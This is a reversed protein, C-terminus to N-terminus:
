YWEPGRARVLFCRTAIGAIFPVGLYIFVSRAVDGISVNVVSGHLGFLQPLKTVFVWAYLSYFLVQFVSNFAVLGAAYETDGKALENWVIVMAICRALGIMILGAMYEPYNRLFIIALTFMLLPGIVWNQILSLTLVKKNRFVEGLEEYRVKALPPYMMLILGSAIPVSTTGVTFRNLFPVIGPVLWGSVVGIVMASFIWVTLYRDLISLRQTANM